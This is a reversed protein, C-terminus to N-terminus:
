VEVTQYDQCAFIAALGNRDEPAISAEAEAVIADVDADTAMPDHHTLGLVKAGVTRAVNACYGPTGHGWGATVTEYKKQPYQSDMVLLDAGQLHRKMSGPMAAQNEHDTLFVFVKGTPRDEFRYSITNEPHNTKLMKIVLCEALPYRGKPQMMVQAPATLEARELEELTFLKVGGKPHVIIVNGSPHEMGKGTFHSLVEEASIPHFPPKMLARMMQIPGIGLELPGLCHIRVSKVFTLPCLLLGQQHDHHTHTFLITLKEIGAKLAELGFPYIGSGADMVLRHKDPLCVSEVEVCTTNGGYRVKEPSSVPLSGRTGWFKVNM